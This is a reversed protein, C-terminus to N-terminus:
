QQKRVWTRPFQQLSPPQLKPQSRRQLQLRNTTRRRSRKRTARRGTPRRRTRERTLRRRSTRRITRRWNRRSTTILRTRELKRRRQNIQRITERKRATRRRRRRNARPATKPNRKRMQWDRLGRSRTTSMTATRRPRNTRRRRQNRRRRPPPTRAPAKPTPIEASGSNIHTAPKSDALAPVAASESKKKKAGCALALLGVTSLHLLLLFLSIMKLCPYPISSTRYSSSYPLPPLLRPLPPPSDGV